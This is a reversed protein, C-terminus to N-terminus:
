VSVAGVACMLTVGVDTWMQGVFAVMIPMVCAVGSCGGRVLGQCAMIGAVPMDATSLCVKERRQAWCLCAVRADEQTAAAFHGLLVRRCCRMMQLHVGWASLGVGLVRGILIPNQLPPQM